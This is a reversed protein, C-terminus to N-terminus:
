RTRGGGRRSGPPRPGPARRPRCASGTASRGLAELFQVPTRIVAFAGGTGAPEVPWALPNAPSPAPNPATAPPIVPAITLDPRAEGEVIEGPRTATAPRSANPMPIPMPIPMPVEEEEVMRRGAEEM